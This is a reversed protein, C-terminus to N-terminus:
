YIFRVNQTEKLIKTIQPVYHINFEEQTLDGHGSLFYTIVKSDTLSMQLIFLTVNNM